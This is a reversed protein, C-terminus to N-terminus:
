WLSEFYETIHGRKNGNHHSRNFLISKKSKKSKELKELKESRVSM